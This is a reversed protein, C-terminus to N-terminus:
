QCVPEAPATLALGYVLDGFTYISTVSGPRRISLAGYGICRTYPIQGYLPRTRFSDDGVALGEATRWGLPAGLTFLAVVRGRRFSAAVGSWRQGQVQFLWTRVPCVACLRHRPGWRREVAAEPEGLRVGGLSVGSVLVGKAPVGAQAVGAGALSLLVASLLIARPGPVLRRAGRGLGRAVVRLPDVSGARADDADAPDAQRDRRLVRERDCRRRPGHGARRCRELPVRAPQRPGDDPGPRGQLPPDPVVGLGPEHRPEELVQGGRDARPEHGPDPLGADAARGPEPQRRARLGPGGDPAQGPDERDGHRRHRRGRGRRLHERLRRDRDRSGLRRSGQLPEARRRGSKWKAAKTVENLVRAWRENEINALRFAVPDLGAAHALEDIMQESAFLAQPAAPARLYAVRPLPTGVPISRGLVRHNGIAYQSGANERDAAGFATTPIPTGMTEATTEVSNWGQQFSTYDYAVIKGDADVAGRIDVLTAPGFFDWGHEQSRSMQVRVPANVAQSLVAAAQAADDQLNKGYCGAGEYFQIRVQEPKFGLLAAIQTRTGYVNQGAMMVTAAGNKVDAVAASPGFSAHGQYAVGYSEALVVKAKKLGADISGKTVALREGLNPTERIAKFLNGNGPMTKSEAWTVKLDNAAQIADQETQAVVGIFDGKRIVRAGKIGKISAENVSLAKVPQTYAGQGEPRVIRGHLMGPLRVNHAYVYAGTVKEPTDVRKFPKGVIRYDSVAKLPAKGTNPASFQKGGLLAGYTVSKSSDSKVSVVGKSVVLQSVPAGLQKSALGLLVARAEAAAQRVQPGGASIGNSGATFGQNPSLDTDVRQEKVQPFSLDLEEAAIQLLGTPTGTINIKGFAITATNDEHIVVWSDIKAADPPGAAASRASAKGAVLSGAVSFGIVLAGGGKLFKKRDFETALAQDIKRESLLETM